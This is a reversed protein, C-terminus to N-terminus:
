NQFVRLLPNWLQKERSKLGTDINPIPNHYHLIRYILLRSKLEDLEELLPKYIPDDANNIADQIDHEPYGFSCPMKIIREKFGKARFSSPMREAAFAKFGYTYYGEQEFGLSESPKENKPVKFGKTYGSKYMRFKEPEEDLNDLEDELLTGIGEYENGYFRYINATSIDLGLFARYALRQFLFLNSSKGAETDAIFFLYHTIGLRDQFLTFLCDGACLNLHNDSENVYRKWQKKIKSFLTDPTENTKADQVLHNIQEISEFIYPENLYGSKKPPYLHKERKKGDLDEDSIDIFQQVSIQGTSSESTIWYPTNHEGIIVAEALFHDGLKYVQSKSIIQQIEESKSKANANSKGNGSATRKGKENGQVKANAVTVADRPTYKKNERAIIQDRFYANVDEEEEEDVSTSTISASGFGDLSIENEEEETIANLAEINDATATATTTTTLEDHEDSAKRDSNSSDSATTTL